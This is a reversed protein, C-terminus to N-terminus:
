DAGRASTNSVAFITDDSLGSNHVGTAGDRRKPNTFLKVIKILKAQLGMDNGAM